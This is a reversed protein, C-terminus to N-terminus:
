LWRRVKGLRDCRAIPEPHLTGSAGLSHAFGQPDILWSGHQSQGTGAQSVVRWGAAVLDLVLTGAGTRYVSQAHGFSEAM